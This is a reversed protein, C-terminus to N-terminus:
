AGAQDSDNSPRPTRHRGRRNYNNRKKNRAKVRKIDLKRQKIEVSKLHLFIDQPMEDPLEVLTYEGQININNINNKDVGSEEILIKKLEESTVKHKSGVDLRYRIMKIGPQVVIPEELGGAARAGNLAGSKLKRPLHERRQEVEAVAGQTARGGADRCDDQTRATTPSPEKRQKVESVTGSQQEVKGMKPTAGRANVGGYKNNGIM